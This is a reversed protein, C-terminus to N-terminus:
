DKDLVYRQYKWGYEDYKSKFFEIDHTWGLSEFLEVSPVHENQIYIILVNPTFRVNFQRKSATNIFRGYNSVIIHDLEDELRKFEEGEKAVQKAVNPDYTKSPPTEYTDEPLGLNNYLYHEVKEIYADDVYKTRAM